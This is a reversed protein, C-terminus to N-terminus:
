RLTLDSKMALEGSKGCIIEVVFLIVCLKKGVSIVYLEEMSCVLM